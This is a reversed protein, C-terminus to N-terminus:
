AKRRFGLLALVGCGLLLAAGPIPTSKFDPGPSVPMDMGWIGGDYNGSAMEFFSTYVPGQSGWEVWVDEGDWGGGHITTLNAAFLLYDQDAALEYGDQTTNYLGAHFISFSAGGGVKSPSMENVIKSIGYDALANTNADFSQFTVEGSNGSGGDDYGMNLGFSQLNDNQEAHLYINVTVEEGSSSTVTGSPDFWIYHAQATAGSLLFIVIVSIIKIKNKM